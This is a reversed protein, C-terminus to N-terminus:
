RPLKLAREAQQEVSGSPDQILKLAAAAWDEVSRPATDTAAVAGGSASTAGSVPPAMAAGANKLRDVAAAAIAIAAAADAANLARRDSVDAKAAPTPTLTAARVEEMVAAAVAPASPATAAPM